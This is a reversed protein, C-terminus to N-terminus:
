SFLITHPAKNLLDVLHNFTGRNKGWKEDIPPNFSIRNRLAPSFNSAYRNKLADAAEKKSTDFLVPDFVFINNLDQNPGLASKFFYQMYVDSAPLSYGCIILNKCHRLANLANKWIEVSKPNTAKNFVPPVISPNELATVLKINQEDGAIRAKSGHPFNISGHLKYLQIKFTDELPSEVSNELGIGSNREIGRSPSLREWTLPKSNFDIPGLASSGYDLKLHKWPFSKATHSTGIISQLLARELILDYNFTIICPPPQNTDRSWNILANWFNQYIKPGKEYQMVTLEGSQESQGTVEIVVAIAKIMWGLRKKEGKGGALANMSLVSLLDEINWVDVSVRGHYGDLEERAKIAEILIKKQDDTLKKEEYRGTQAMKWMVDMFNGMLPIGADFSTGAGFIFVNDCM